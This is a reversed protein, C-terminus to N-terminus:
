QTVQRGGRHKPTPPPSGIPSCEPAETIGLQSISGGGILCRYSGKPTIAVYYTNMPGDARRDSITIASAPQNLALATSDRIRSDSLMTDACGSLTVVAALTLIPKM